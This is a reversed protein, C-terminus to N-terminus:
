RSLALRWLTTTEKSRAKHLPDHEDVAKPHTPKTDLQGVVTLGAQEIACSLFGPERLGLHVALDSLILWAQGSETLHQRLGNLFGTLMQNDPDYIAAEIQTTPRAPIWPPNCVILDSQGQPFLNTNILEIRNAFGLNEINQRACALARPACDTAIVREIGRQALLAAIVGCGTGIDFALSTQPLPAQSVLNLYEGRIPSFVGYPVHIPKPLLPVNVGKRQWEYAGIFGLLARLPVLFPEKLTGLASNCAASVDPARRLSLAFHQDVQVLVCNLLQARQSQAMRHRNFEDRPSTDVAEGSNKDNKDHREGNGSGRKKRAANKRDVRHALATLLQRANHYDGRWLMATGQSALRFADDATLADDVVVIRKPVPATNPPNWLAQLTTENELWTAYQNM